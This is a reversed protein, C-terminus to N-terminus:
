FQLLVKELGDKNKRFSKKEQKPQINGFMRSAEEWSRFMKGDIIYSRKGSSSPSRSFGSFLRYGAGVKPAGPKIGGASVYDEVGDGGIDTRIWALQLLRNYSGDVILQKISQNFDSIIKRAGPYDKRIAFHLTRTILPTSGAVLLQRTRYPHNEFLQYVLMEDALMYDHKVPFFRKCIRQM